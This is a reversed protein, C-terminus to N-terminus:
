QSESHGGKLALSIDGTGYGSNRYRALMAEWAYRPRASAFHSFISMRTAAIAPPRARYLALALADCKRLMHVFLQKYSCNAVPVPIKVLHGPM